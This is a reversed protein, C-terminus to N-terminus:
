HRPTDLNGAIVQTEHRVATKAREYAEGLRGKAERTKAGLWARTEKGSKPAFLLAVGAGVIAGVAAGALFGTVTINGKEVMSM